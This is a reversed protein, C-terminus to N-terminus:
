IIVVGFHLLRCPWRKRGELCAWKVQLAVLHETNLAVLCALALGEM